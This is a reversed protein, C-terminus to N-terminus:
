PACPDIRRWIHANNNKSRELEAFHLADQYTDFDQWYDTEISREWGLGYNVMPLVHVTWQM